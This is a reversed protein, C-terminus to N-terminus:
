PRRAGEARTAGQKSLLQQVDDLLQRARADFSHASAIRDAIRGMEEDDPFRTRGEPGCLTALEARSRFPQVAGEFLELGPIPDSIVRAGSAVADFLRNALFGHERMDEWHDALVLGHDRYLQMLRENEVYDGAVLEDPIKGKWNGGYVTLPVGRRVAARVVPRGRDRPASGVFVPRSGDGAPASMDARQGLDTAQLLCRVERGSRLTMEEAWEASAAYVIDFGGLEEPRVMDPHSIVWLVNLKGPVPAILDLGRVGLTVDDFATAPGDHRGHRYSVVEQGLRTLSGALSRLFHTDGWLDGGPGGIAPNRLGWRLPQAGSGAEDPRRALQVRPQPVSM